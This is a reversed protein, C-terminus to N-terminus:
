EDILGMQRAEYTAESRNKVQLKRYINRIHVPVTHKSLGYLDAVEQYTYGRAIANLIEQERTTLVKKKQENGDKPEAEERVSNIMLRAISASMPSEGALVSECAKIVEISEDDKLLYGVAGARIANMVLERHSLASFVIAQSEPQEVGLQRIAEVGSGDPLNLDAVLLDVPQTRIIELAQELTESVEVSGAQPWAEFIHQFRQAIIANDELLLITLNQVTM